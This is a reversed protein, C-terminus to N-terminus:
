YFRAILSPPVKIWFLFLCFLNRFSRWHYGDREFKEASTVAYGDLPVLAAKGNAKEIRWVLDVDEMLSIPKFGGLVQLFQSHIVLGQDGYPLAFTRCRWAVQKELRRAKRNESDLKFHFYGAREKNSPDAIFAALARKAQQDLRTDAHVILLWDDDIEDCAARLQTGRGKTSIVLKARYKQAIQITEDTSGGDSVIITPHIDLNELTEALFAAANYTPIIVTVFPLCPNTGDAELITGELSNMTTQAKIAAAGKSM